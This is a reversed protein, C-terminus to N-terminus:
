FIKKHNKPIDYILSKFFHPAYQTGFPTKRSSMTSTELVYLVPVTRPFGPRIFDRKRHRFKFFFFFTNEFLLLFYTVPGCLSVCVCVGCMCVVSVCVVCVYM